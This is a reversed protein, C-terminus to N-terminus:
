QLAATYIKCYCQLATATVSCIYICRSQLVYATTSCCMHLAVAFFICFKATYYYLLFTSNKITEEAQLKLFLPTNPFLEFNDVIGRACRLSARLSGETFAIAAKLEDNTM